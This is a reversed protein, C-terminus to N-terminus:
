LLLDCASTRSSFGHRGVRRSRIRRDVSRIKFLNFKLFSFAVVAIARGSWGLSRPLLSWRAWFLGAIGRVVTLVMLAEVRNSEFAMSGTQSLTHDLSPGLHQAHLAAHMHWISCYSCSLKSPVFDGQPKRSCSVLGKISGYCCFTNQISLVVLAWSFSSVDPFNIVKDIARLLTLQSCICGDSVFPM